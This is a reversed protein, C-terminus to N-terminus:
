LKRWGEEHGWASLVDIPEDFIQYEWWGCGVPHKDWSEAQTREPEVWRFHLRKQHALGHCGSTSGGGCLLVTPKSLPRGNVLLNGASRPIIHHRNTAPTGCVCCRSYANDANPKGFLPHWMKDAAGKTPKPKSRRPKPKKEKAREERYKELKREYAREKREKAKARGAECCRDCRCGYNYGTVTGHRRDDPDAKFRQLSEYTLGMVVAGAFNDM